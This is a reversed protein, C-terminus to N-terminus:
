FMMEVYNLLGVFNWWFKWCCGLECWWNVIIFVWHMLEDFVCEMVVVVVNLWSIMWLKVVVVDNEMLKTCVGFMSMYICELSLYSKRGQLKPTNQNEDRYFFFNSNCGQLFFINSFLGQGWMGASEAHQVGHPLQQSHLKPWMAPWM